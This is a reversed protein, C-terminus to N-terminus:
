DARHRVGIYGIGTKLERWSISSRGARHGRLGAVTAAVPVPGRANLHWENNVSTNGQLDVNAHFFPERAPETGLPFVGVSVTARAGEELPPTYRVLWIRVGPEAWRLSGRDRAPFATVSTVKTDFGAVLAGGECGVFFLSQGGADVFDVRLNADRGSDTIFSFYVPWSGVPGLAVPATLPVDQPLGAALTVAETLLLQTPNPDVLRRPRFLRVYDVAMYTGDAADTLPTWSEPWPLNSLIVNMRDGTFGGFYNWDDQGFRGYAREEEQPFWRDFKGVGTRWQEHLRPHTDGRWVERGNLYYIFEREGLWLGWTHYEDFSHSVHAGQAVHDPAGRANRIYAVTKWDHWALHANGVSGAARVDQRTEVIDIEYRNSVGDTRPEACALWFANNVGSAQGAKFRAEVFTNPEVTDRTYVYGATWESLRKGVPVQERRVHLRLEGDRVELNGPGRATQRKLDKTYAQSVWVAENLRDGDFEDAFVLVMEESSPQASPLIATGLVPLCGVSLSLSVLRALHSLLIM